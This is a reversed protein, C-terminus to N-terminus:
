LQEVKVILILFDTYPKTLNAGPNHNEDLLLYLFSKKKIPCKLLFLVHRM